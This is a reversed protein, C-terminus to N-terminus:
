SPLNPKFLPSGFKKNKEKGKCIYCMANFADRVLNVPSGGDGGETGREEWFTVSQCRANPGEPGESFSISELLVARYSCAARHTTFNGGQINPSVSGIM